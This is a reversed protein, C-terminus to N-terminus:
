TMIGKLIVLFGDRALCGSDRTFEVPKVVSVQLRSVSYLIDRKSFVAVVVVHVCM